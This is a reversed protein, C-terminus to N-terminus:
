ALKVEQPAHCHVCFGDAFFHRSCLTVFPRSTVDNTVVLAGISTPYEPQDRTRDDGSTTTDPAKKEQKEPVHSLAPIESSVGGEGGFPDRASPEGNTVFGDRKTVHPPSANTVNTVYGELLALVRSLEGRLWRIEARLEESPDPQARRARYAAAREANSKPPM